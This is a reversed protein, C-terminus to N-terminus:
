NIPFDVTFSIDKLDGPEIIVGEVHGDAFGVNMRRGPHRLKDFLEGSGVGAKGSGNGAPGPQGNTALFGDGPSNYVDALTAGKDGEYYLQYPNAANDGGRPKADTMLFLTAPHPFRATNGRQRSHNIPPRGGGVDAFGLAAENFAYSTIPQIAPAPHTWGSTDEILTTPHGREKDAPCLFITGIKGSNIDQMMNNWSDLRIKQGLSAALAAPLPLPRPTAGDAFYSYHTQNADALGAPTAAGYVRGTVPMYGRHESAHLIMAQLISRQNAACNVFQAQARAKGLAPLLISILLAIIGIVVLLEVLTFARHLRRM